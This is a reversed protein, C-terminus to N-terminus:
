KELSTRIKKLIYQQRHRVSAVHSIYDSACGLRRKCVNCHLVGDRVNFSYFDDADESSDLAESEDPTLLQLAATEGGGFIIRDQLRQCLNLHYTLTNFIKSFPMGRTEYLACFEEQYLQRLEHEFMDEKRNKDELFKVFTKAVIKEQDLNRSRSM